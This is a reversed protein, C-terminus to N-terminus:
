HAVAVKAAATIKGKEWVSGDDFVVRSVSLTGQTLKMRAGSRQSVMGAYPGAPIAGKAGMNVKGFVIWDLQRESEPDIRARVVKGQDIGKKKGDGFRYVAVFRQGDTKVEPLELAIEAMVIRKPSMGRLSIILTSAWAELEGVEAGTIEVPDGTNARIGVSPGDGALASPSLLCLVSLVSLLLRVRM